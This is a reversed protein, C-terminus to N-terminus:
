SLLQSTRHESTCRPSMASTSTSAMATHNEAEATTGAKALWHCRLAPPAAHNVAGTWAPNTSPAM